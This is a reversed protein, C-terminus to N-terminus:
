KKREDLGAIHLVLNELLAAPHSGSSKLALDTELLRRFIEPFATIPFARAQRMLGDLFYPNIGAERVIGKRDLGQEQWYAIKWLQRFHRAIMSLAVLPVVGEALLRELLPLARNSDRFGLADTLEFISDIRIESVIAKVDATDVVKRDGLYSFLKDLEGVIEQLNNGVRRCFTTLGEESFDFGSEKAYTSVFEPIQNDYYKRFEVLKGQKKFLQFFKRRSDIKEATFLLITEQAPNKLYPILAELETAPVLHADRVLVLRHRNFVPFTQACDLVEAARVDKGHFVNLNFDRSDEPVALNRIKEVTRELFFREEGYLFLLPPFDRDRLAKNLDAPIM